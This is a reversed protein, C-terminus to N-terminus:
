ALNGVVEVGVLKTGMRSSIISLKVIVIRLYIQEYCTGRNVFNSSLILTKASSGFFERLQRENWGLTKEVHPQIVTKEIKWLLGYDEQTAQRLKFM